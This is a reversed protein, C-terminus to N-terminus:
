SLVLSANHGTSCSKIDVTLVQTHTHTYKHTKYTKNKIFAKAVTMQEELLHCSGTKKNPRVNQHMNFEYQSVFVTQVFGSVSHCLGVFASVSVAVSFNDGM